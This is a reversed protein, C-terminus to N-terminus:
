LVHLRGSILTFRRMVSAPAVDHIFDYVTFFYGLIQDELEDNVSYWSLLLIIMDRCFGHGTNVYQFESRLPARQLAIKVGM